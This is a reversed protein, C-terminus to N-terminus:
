CKEFTCAKVDYNNIAEALSDGKGIVSGHVDEPLLCVFWPSEQYVDAGLLKPLGDLEIKIHNNRVVFPLCPGFPNLKLYSVPFYGKKGEREKTKNNLIYFVFETM